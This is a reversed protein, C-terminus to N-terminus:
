NSKITYLLNALEGYTHWLHLSKQIEMRREIEKCIQENNMMITKTKLKSHLPVFIIKIQLARSYFILHGEIIIYVFVM